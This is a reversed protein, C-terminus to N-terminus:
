VDKEEREVPAEVGACLESIGRAERYETTDRWDIGKAIDKDMLDLTSHIYRLMPGYMNVAHQVFDGVRKDLGPNELDFEESPPSVYFTMHSDRSDVIQWPLIPLHNGNRYYSPPFGEHCAACHIIEIVGWGGPGMVPSHKFGDVLLPVQWETYPGEDPPTWRVTATLAGECFPCLHHFKKETM